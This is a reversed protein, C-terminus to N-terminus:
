RSPADRKSIGLYLIKAQQSHIERTAGKKEVGRWMCSQEAEMM